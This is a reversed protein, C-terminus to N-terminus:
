YKKLKILIHVLIINLVFHFYELLRELISGFCDLISLAIFSRDFGPVMAKGLFSIPILKTYFPIWIRVKLVTWGTLFITREAM